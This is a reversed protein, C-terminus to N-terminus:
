PIRASGSSAGVRASRLARGVDQGADDFRYRRRPCPGIRVAPGARVVPAMSPRGIPGAVAGAFATPLGTALLILLACVLAPVVPGAMKQPGPILSSPHPILRGGDAPPGPENRPIREGEAPPGPENRPIREGEAPPGPENRPIREGEAPTTPGHERRPVLGGEPVAAPGAPAAVEARAPESVDPDRLPSGPDPLSSSSDLMGSGPDLIPDAESEPGDEPGSEPAVTGVPEPEPESSGDPAPDGAVGVGARRLKVLGNLARDLKRDNDLQYRRMLEGEASTDVALRGALEARDAAERRRHGAQRELLRETEEDVRRLLAARRGAPDEPLGDDLQRLMQRRLEAIGEPDGEPLIPELWGQWAIADQGLPRQGLMQLAAILENTRWDVGRDLWVRLKAWQDILMQCGEATAELKLVIHRPEGRGRAFPDHRDQSLYPFLAKGAEQKARLDYATMWHGLAAVEDQHARGAAAEAARLAAGARAAAAREGRAIKWTALAAQETLALEVANRPQLADIFDEVRRRFADQDEGPLVPISATMGHKVANM